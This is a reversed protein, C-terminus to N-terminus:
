DGSWAQLSTMVAYAGGLTHLVFRSREGKKCDRMCNIIELVGPKPSRVMIPFGFHACDLFFSCLSATGAQSWTGDPAQALTFVVGGPGGVQSGGEATVGVVTGDAQPYVNSLPAAGDKCPEAACFDYIDARQEGTVQAVYGHGYLGGTPSAFYTVTRTDHAFACSAALLAAAILLNKVAKGEM